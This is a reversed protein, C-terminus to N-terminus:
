ECPKIIPPNDQPSSLLIKLGRKHLLANHALSELDRWDCSVDPNRASFFDAQRGAENRLSRLFQPDDLEM